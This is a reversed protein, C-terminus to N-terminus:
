LRTRMSRRPEAMVTDILESQSLLRGNSTKYSVSGDPNVIKTVKEGTLMECVLEPERLALTDLTQHRSIRTRAQESKLRALEAKQEANLEPM